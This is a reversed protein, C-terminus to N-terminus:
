ETVVLLPYNVQAGWLSGMITKNNTECALTKENNAITNDAVLISSAIKTTGDVDVYEGNYFTPLITHNGTFARNVGLCNDSSTETTNTMNNKLVEVPITYSGQSAAVPYSKRFNFDNASDGTNVYIFQPPFTSPNTWSFTVAKSKSINFTKGSGLSQGDIAFDSILSPYTLTRDVTFTNGADTIVLRLKSGGNVPFIPLGNNMNPILTSTSNYYGAFGLGFLNTTYPITVEANSNYTAKIVLDTRATAKKTTPDVTNVFVVVQYSTIFASIQLNKTANAIPDEAFIASIEVLGNSGATAVVTAGVPADFEVKVAVTSVMQIIYLGTEKVTCAISVSTAGPLSTVSPCDDMFSGDTKYISLTIRDNSGLGAKPVSRGAAPFTIKQEIKSGANASVKRGVPVGAKVEISGSTGGNNSQSLFLLSGYLLSKNDKDKKFPNQECSVMWVLMFIILTSNFFASARRM